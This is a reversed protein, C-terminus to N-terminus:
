LKDAKAKKNTYLLLKGSLSKKRYIFGSKELLGFPLLNEQQFIFFMM